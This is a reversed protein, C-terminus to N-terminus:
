RRRWPGRTAAGDDGRGCSVTRASRHRLVGPRSPLEDAPDVRARGVRRSGDRTDIVEFVIGAARLRRTLNDGMATATTVQGATPPNDDFALCLAAEALMTSTETYGPDGGSVRTHVTRGGGRGILDVSFRTRDRRQQSPGV